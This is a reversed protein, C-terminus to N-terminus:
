ESSAQPLCAWRPIERGGKYRRVKLKGQAYDFPGPMKPKAKQGLKQVTQGESGAVTVPLKL